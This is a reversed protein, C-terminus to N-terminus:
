RTMAAPTRAAAPRTILQTDALDNLRDQDNASPADGNVYWLKTAPSYTVRQAAVAARLREYADGLVSPLTTTM